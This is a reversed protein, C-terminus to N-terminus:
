VTDSSPTEPLGEVLYKIMASATTYDFLNTGSPTHRYEYETGQNGIPEFKIGGDPNFNDPLKWGLFRNTMHKIQEETM